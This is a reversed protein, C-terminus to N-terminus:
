MNSRDKIFFGIEELSTIIDYDKLYVNKPVDLHVSTFNLIGKVGAQVLIKTVDVAVAPPVTLVAMSISYENVKDNIEGISFCSIGSDGTHIKRPDIDFTAAIHLKTDAKHIFATIASGLNGMGVVAINQGQEDDIVKGILTVLEKINYGKRHNGSLGLLMLDRRVQVPTLNLLRALDHSFIHAGDISHYKSLMRRYKSLREVTRAPLDM